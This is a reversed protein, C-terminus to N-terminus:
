GYYVWKVDRVKQHVLIYGSTFQESLPKSFDVSFDFVEEVTLAEDLIRIPWVQTRQQNPLFLLKERDVERVFSLDQNHEGIGHNNVGALETTPIIEGSQIEAIKLIGGIHPTQIWAVEIASDEDLNEIAAINLWRFRTGIERVFAFEVM